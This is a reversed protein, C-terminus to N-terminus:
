VKFILAQFDQVRHAGRVEDGARYFELAEALVAHLEQVRGPNPNPNPNPNEASVLAVGQRLEEFAKTLNMQEGDALYDERPFRDPAGLVVYGIFNYLSPIDRVWRHAM